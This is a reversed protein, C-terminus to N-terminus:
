RNLIILRSYNLEATELKVFYIGNLYESIDFSSEDEFIEQSLIMQGYSNFVQLQGPPSQISFIGTGPNPFIQLSQKEYENFSAREHTPGNPICPVTVVIINSTDSCLAASQAICRYKGQSKATYNMSTAGPISYNRNYWQYSSLGSNATLLVSDGLCFSTSSQPIASLSFNIITLNITIISDCGLVNNTTDFYIGSLHWVYNGSPSTFSDCAAIVLTSLSNMCVDIIWYDLDGLCNESKDGSIGSKSYGGCIFSGDAIQVISTLVDVSYSGISNQSEINGISDLKLIWYDSFGLSNENKNGSINSSSEGGCVYGGDATMKITRGIDQASGGLTKQWQINGLSDVKVIWYDASGFSNETKDGSIDSYSAGGLIFGNDTTKYGSTLGDLASGGITKQWQIMGISDIKVIWCDEEGKSNESKDGSINSNSDGNCLYGGDSTQVISSLRDIDNGGITNQWQISGDPYLKLVWFDFNGNGNETKNGSIPSDSYGSCIYGGESTQSINYLYDTYIGGYTKQWLINGASDLKLIWYDDGGISNETKDGSINSSSWGGCIYGGDATQNVSTLRDYDSGGITKQWLINGVSDLKLIWYDDGGYSNETKDGSINSRSWGGCIYGDDSTSDLSVFWDMDGGGITNQWLVGQAILNSNIMMCTIFFIVAITKTKKM